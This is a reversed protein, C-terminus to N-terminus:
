EMRTSILGYEKREDDAWLVPLALDLEGIAAAWLERLAVSRERIPSVRSVVKLTGTARWVEVLKRAAERSLPQPQAVATM